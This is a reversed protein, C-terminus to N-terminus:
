LFNGRPPAEKLEKGRRASDLWPPNQDWVKWLQNMKKADDGVKSVDHSDHSDGFKPLFSIKSSLNELLRWRCVPLGCRRGFAMPPRPTKSHKLPIFTAALTRSISLFCYFNIWWGSIYPWKTLNAQIGWISYLIMNWSKNIYLTVLFPYILDPQAPMSGLSTIKEACGGVVSIVSIVLGWTLCCVDAFIQLWFVSTKAITTTISKWLIERWCHHLCIWRFGASEVRVLSM